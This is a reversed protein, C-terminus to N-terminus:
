FFEAHELSLSRRVASSYGSPQESQCRRGHIRSRPAKDNVVVSDINKEQLSNRGEWVMTAILSKTHPIMSDWRDM